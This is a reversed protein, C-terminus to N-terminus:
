EAAAQRRRHAAQWPRLGAGARLGSPGGNANQNGTKNGGQQPKAAKPQEAKPAERKPQEAKPLEQKAATQAAFVQELSEVPHNKTLQDFVINLEEETLVQTNSKPKESFKSIIETVEKPAVGFDSAVERLRYKVLSM